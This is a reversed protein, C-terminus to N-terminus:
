KQCQENSRVGQLCLLWQSQMSCNCKWIKANIGGICHCKFTEAM